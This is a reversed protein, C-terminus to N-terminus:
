DIQGGGTPKGLYKKPVLLAMLIGDIPIDYTFNWALRIPSDKFKVKCIAKNIETSESCIACYVVGGTETSNLWRWNCNYKIFTEIAETTWPIPLPRYAELENSIDEHWDAKMNNQEINIFDGDKFNRLITLQKEIRAKAQTAQSYFSGSRIEQLAQEWYWIEAHKKYIEVFGYDARLTECLISIDPPSTFYKKQTAKEELNKFEDRAKFMKKSVLTTLNDVLWQLPVSYYWANSPLWISEFLEKSKQSDFLRLYYNHILTKGDDAEGFLTRLSEQLEYEKCKVDKKTFRTIINKIWCRKQQPILINYGTDDIPFSTLLPYTELNNLFMNLGNSLEQEAKQTLADLEIKTLSSMNLLNHLVSRLKQIWNICNSSDIISEVLVGSQEKAIGITMDQLFAYILLARLGEETDYAFLSKDDAVDSDKRVLRVIQKKCDSPISLNCEESTSIISRIMIKATTSIEHNEKKQRIIGLVDNLNNESSPAIFLGEKGAFLDDVCHTFRVMAEQADSSFLFVGINERNWAHLQVHTQRIINNILEHGMIM